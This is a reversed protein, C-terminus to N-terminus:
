YKPPDLLTREVKALNDITLIFCGTIIRMQSADQPIGNIVLSSQIQIPPVGPHPGQHCTAPNADHYTLRDWDNQAGNNSVCSKVSAEITKQVDAYDLYSFTVSFGGERRQGWPPNTEPLTVTAFTSGPPPKQAVLKGIALDYIDVIGPYTITGTADDIREQYFGLWDFNQGDRSIAFCRNNWTASAVSSISISALIATTLIQIQKKM